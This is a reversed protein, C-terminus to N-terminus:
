VPTVPNKQVTAYISDIHARNRAKARKIVQLIAKQAETTQEYDTVNITQDGWLYNDLVRNFEKESLSPDIAIMATIERYADLIESYDSGDNSEMEIFAYPEKTPIRLTYKM